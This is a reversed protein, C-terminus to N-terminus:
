IEYKKTLLTQGQFDGYDSDEKWFETEHIKKLISEKISM